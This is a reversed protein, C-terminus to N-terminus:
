FLSPQGAELLERRARERELDIVEDLAAIQHGFFHCTQGIHLPMEGYRKFILQIVKSRIAARQRATSDDWGKFECRDEVTVIPGAPQVRPISKGVIEQLSERVETIFPVLRANLRQDIRDDIEEFTVHPTRGLFVDALVKAAEIQYAELKPRAVEAVRSAEITALWMPLSDLHVVYTDRRSGRADVATILVTTAWKKSNLKQRQSSEDIGLSDCVRRVSVWVEGHEDKIAEITDGHFPVSVLASSM